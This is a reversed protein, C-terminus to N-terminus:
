DSYDMDSNHVYYHPYFTQLCDNIHHTLYPDSMHAMKGDKMGRILHSLLMEVKEERTKNKIRGELLNCRTCLRGRYPGSGHEKQHEHEIVINGTNGYIHCWSCKPDQIISDAILSCVDDCTKGPYSKFGSGTLSSETNMYPQHLAHIYSDRDRKNKFDKPSSLRNRIQMCLYRRPGEYDGNRIYENVKESRSISDLDKWHPGGEEVDM